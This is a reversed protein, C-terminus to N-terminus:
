YIVKMDRAFKYVNVATPHLIKDDDMLYIADLIKNARRWLAAHHVRNRREIETLHDHTRGTRTNKIVYPWNNAGDENRLWTLRKYAAKFTLFEMAEGTHPNEIRYTFETM